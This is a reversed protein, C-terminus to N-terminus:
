RICELFINSFLVASKKVLEIAEITDGQPIEIDESGFLVRVGNVRSDDRPKDIGQKMITRRDDKSISPLRSVKGKNLIDNLGIEEGHGCFVEM